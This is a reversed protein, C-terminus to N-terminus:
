TDARNRGEAKQKAGDPSARGAQPPHARERPADVFGRAIWVLILVILVAAIPPGLCVAVVEVTPPPTRQNAQVLLSFVVWSVALVFWLRSLGRWWRNVRIAELIDSLIGRVGRRKEDNEERRTLQGLEYARQVADRLLGHFRPAPIHLTSNIAYAHAGEVQASVAYVVGDVTRANAIRPNMETSTDQEGSLTRPTVRDPSDATEAEPPPTFLAVIRPRLAAGVAGWLLLTSLMTLVPGAAASRPGIIFYRLTEIAICAVALWMAFRAPTKGKAVILWVGLWVAPDVSTGVLEGLAAALIEM